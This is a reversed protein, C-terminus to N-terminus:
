SRISLYEKPRVELVRGSIYRTCTECKVGFQAHYDAECYPVGDRGCLLFWVAECRDSVYKPQRSPTLLAFIRSIYFDNTIQDVSVQQHVRRNPGHQLDSMQFLQCAVTEGPRPSIPGAQDWRRVWCLRCFVACGLLPISDLLPLCLLAYQGLM